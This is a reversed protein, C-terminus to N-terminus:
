SLAHAEVLTGSHLCGGTSPLMVLANARAMADLRDAGAVALPHVLAVGDDDTHAHAFLCEVGSAQADVPLMLRARWHPRSGIRGQLGDILARGLTLYAIAVSGPAGPLALLRAQDLSGCLAIGDAEMRVACHRQGFEALVAAVHENRDDREGSGTGCAIILDFACGADRLAIEVQRPQCPLRPWATPQLGDALLLGMMLERNSDRAIGPQEDGITFVAVTPKRSVRLSAVGLSAALSVRAPTLLEGTQLMRDTRSDAGVSGDACLDQALIRGHTGSLALSESDLRHRAAIERVVRLADMLGVDDRDENM